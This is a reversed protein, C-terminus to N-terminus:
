HPRHSKRISLLSLSVKGRRTSDVMVIRCSYETFCYSHGSSTVFGDNELVVPLLHLNARRLNFDWVGAHGDTSKFYAHVEKARAPNTYWAGCRQNASGDDPICVSERSFM